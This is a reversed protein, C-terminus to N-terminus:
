GRGILRRWVRQLVGPQSETLSLPEVAQWIQQDGWNQRIALHPSIVSKRNVVRNGLKRRAAKSYHHKSIRLRKLDPFRKADLIRELVNKELIGYPLSLRQLACFWDSELLFEYQPSGFFCHSLDLWVVGLEAVLKGLQNFDDSNSSSLIVISRLQTQGELVPWNKKVNKVHTLTVATPFGGIWDNWFLEQNSESLTLGPYFEDIFKRSESKSKTDYRKLPDAFVRVLNARPDGREELWDAFVMRKLDDFPDEHM